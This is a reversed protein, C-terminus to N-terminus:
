YSKIKEFNDLNIKKSGDEHTKVIEIFNANHKIHSAEYVHKAYVQNAFSEHYGTFTVLLHWENPSPHMILDFLPSSENLAHFATWSLSFVPTKARDLTLPIIERYYEGEKNLKDVVLWLNLHAEVINSTRLNGVRFRIVKQHNHSGVLAMKSFKVGASPRTFRAFALGTALASFIIGFFAELTVIANPWVGVPTMQGYGITAMTQVSFFFLDSISNPRANTVAGPGCLFYASAFILNTLLYIAIVLWYFNRWPTSLLWHYVNSEFLTLTPKSLQARFQELDMEFQDSKLFRHESM